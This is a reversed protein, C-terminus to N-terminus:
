FATVSGDQRGVYITSPTSAFLGNALVGPISDLDREMAVPDFEDTFTVDLIPNGNDTIVPGMKREALRLDSAGGLAAIRKQVSRRAEVAIEVPIPFSVGLRPVLKQEDVIIVVTGSAYAIVKELLLAGGGGKTLYRKPDVEDAGDIVLDLSGDIAPDNMSRVPIGLRECEFQAQFSTAVGVIDTLAGSDILHGIRRIAWIATTGTGMGVRMGSRVHREVAHFGVTRKIEDADM